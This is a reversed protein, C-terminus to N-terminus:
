GRIIRGEAWIHLMNRGWGIYRVIDFGEEEVAGGIACPRMELDMGAVVLEHNEVMGGIM